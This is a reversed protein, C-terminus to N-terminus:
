LLGLAKFSAVGERGVVLHDHVTIRLARLAEVIQRTMDVDASSPTPDGSPHNHVLILSSADLELARKAVERPYVPAHDVTGRYMQEDRILQNKKDLFLVRFSERGDYAMRTRVYAQLATWSSIVELKRVPEMAVRVAADHVLQLDLAAAPSCGAAILAPTPAAVTAAYSGFRDILTEALAAANKVRSRILILALAEADTLQDVGFRVAAERVGLSAPSAQSTPFTQLNLEDESLHPSAGYASVFIPGIPMPRLTNEAIIYKAFVTLPALNSENFSDM